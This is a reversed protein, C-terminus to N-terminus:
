ANDRLFELLRIHKRNDSEMVDVLVSWWATDAVKKLEKRLQRLEKIDDREIALLEKTQQALADSDASPRLEPLGPEGRQEMEARLQAVMEAFLRHHRIEDDLILRVIFRVHEDPASEALEGYKTLADRETDMHEQLSTILRQAWVNVDM